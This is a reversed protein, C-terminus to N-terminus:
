KMHQIKLIEQKKSVEYIQGHDVVKVHSLSICEIFEKKREGEGIIHVITEKDVNALVDRIINIDIINNISGLYCIELKESNLRPCYDM